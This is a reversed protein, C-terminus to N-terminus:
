LPFGPILNLSTVGARMLVRSQCRHAFRFFEKKKNEGKSGEGGEKEHVGRVLDLSILHEELLFLSHHPVKGQCVKTEERFRIIGPMDGLGISVGGELIRGQRKFM